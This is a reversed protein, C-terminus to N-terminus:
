NSRDLDLAEVRGSEFNTALLTRGNPELALERPFLGARAIGILAPKGALAAASDVVTLGSTHGPANFRNSDAVVIRAGDDVVALGVPAEGVRVRALLAHKPDSVLEAASFALLADSQRATVWVVRGDPSVAVRVTGCGALANSVVSAAPKTEARALDIVSVTGDAGLLTGSGPKPRVGAALESTAYLWRGDPAVAMGVVAQGLPVAGVYGSGGFGSALARGLNFVAIEDQYELSVFAFRDDPSVTVEIASGFAGPPFVTAGPRRVAAPLAGNRPEPSTLFGLLAHPKGAEARAVDIVAAGSGSAVLLYRGDHTLADGAANPVGLSITRAVKPAFGRDSLVAVFSGGRGGVQRTLGSGFAYFGSVFAYRGDPSVAVGFPSGGVATM